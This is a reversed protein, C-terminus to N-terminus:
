KKKGYRYDGPRRGPVFSAGHYRDGVEIIGKQKMIKAKHQRSELLIPNGMNDTINPNTHQHGPWYVDPMQPMSVQGCRDCSEIIGEKLSYIARVTIPRDNHCTRCEM